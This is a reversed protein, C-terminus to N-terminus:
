MKWRNYVAQAEDFCHRYYDVLDSPLQVLDGAAAENEVIHRHYFQVAAHAIDLLPIDMVHLDDLHALFKDRYKRATDVYTAFEPATLGLNSLMAAEFGGPDTVVNAWFHKGKSDGLLKCWEVIAMDIFNGDVSIWFHPSSKTLRDHGARYYAMNRAFHACVLVARRLRDRRTVPAL